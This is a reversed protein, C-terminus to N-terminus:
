RRRRRWLRRIVLFLIGGVLLFPLLAVLVVVLVAASRDLVDLAEGFAQALQSSAATVRDSQFGITLLNTRVRRQQQASEQQVQQLESEITALERSLLILDEASADKRGALESLRDHQVRLRQERMGTDRVAEALDEARTSRQAIKGEAAAMAVLPEVGTPVVRLTLSASPWEGANVEEGLVTCEGRAGSQCADRVQAVRAALESEPLRIRVDHEYALFQGPANEMGAVARTGVDESVKKSCAAIALLALLAIGLGRHHM